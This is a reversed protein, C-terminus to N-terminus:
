SVRNCEMIAFDGIPLNHFILSYIVFVPLFVVILGCRKKNKIRMFSMKENSGSLSFPVSLFMLALFFCGDTVEPGM